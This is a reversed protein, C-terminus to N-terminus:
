IYFDFLMYLGSLSGVKRQQGNEEQEEQDEIKDASTFDKNEENSKMETQNQNKSNNGSIRKVKGGKM